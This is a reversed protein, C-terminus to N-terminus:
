TSYSKSTSLPMPGHLATSSLSPINQIGYLNAVESYLMERMFFHESLRARGLATLAALSLPANM